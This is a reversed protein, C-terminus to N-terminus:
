FISPFPLQCWRLWTILIFRAAQYVKNIVHVGSAIHQSPCKAELANDGLVCLRPRMMPFVDPVWVSLCEVLYM